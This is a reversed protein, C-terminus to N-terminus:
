VQHKVTSFFEVPAFTAKNCIAFRPPPDITQVADTAPKYQTGNTIYSAIPLIYYSIKVYM